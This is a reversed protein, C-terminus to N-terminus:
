LFFHLTPGLVDISLSTVRMAIHWMWMGLINFVERFNALSAEISLFHSFRM